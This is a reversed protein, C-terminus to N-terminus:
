RCGGFDGTALPIPGTVNCALPDTDGGDRDGFTAPELRLGRGARLLRSGTIHVREPEKPSLEFIIPSLLDDRGKVGAAPIVNIAQAINLAGCTDMARVLHPPPVRSQKTAGARRPPSTSRSVIRDQWHPGTIITSSTSSTALSWCKVCAGSMSLYFPKM